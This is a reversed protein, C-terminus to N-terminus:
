APGNGHHAEHGGPMGGGGMMSGAGGMQDGMAAHMTDCAERLDAPMADRMQTHMSEMGARRADSTGGPEGAAIGVGAGLVLGVSVAALTTLLKTRM